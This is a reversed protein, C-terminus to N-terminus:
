AAENDVHDVLASEVACRGKRPWIPARRCDAVHEEVHNLFIRPVRAVGVDQALSHVAADAFTRGLVEGELCPEGYTEHGVAPIRQGPRCAPSRLERVQRRLARPRAVLPREPKSQANRAPEAFGALTPEEVRVERLTGTDVDFVFGRVERTRNLFPCAKVQAISNRVDQDLDTFAMSSWQPRRGTEAAIKAKFEQDTFTQMGCETHHILMIETTGLQHQSITLSRLVDDTVVGGANRVVHAEGPALGLLAYVDMRADMCAVVAVGLSPRGPAPGRFRREYREGNALLMETQSM